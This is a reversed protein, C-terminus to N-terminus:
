RERDYGCLWTHQEPHRYTVWTHGDRGAARIVKKGVNSNPM